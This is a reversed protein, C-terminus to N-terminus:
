LHQILVRLLLSIIMLGSFGLLLIAMCSSKAPPSVKWSSPLSPPDPLRPNTVTEKIWESIDTENIRNINITSSKVLRTFPKLAKLECSTFWSADDHALWLDFSDRSICLSRQTRDQFSLALNNEDIFQLLMIKYPYIKDSFGYANSFCVALLGRDDHRHHFLKGYEPGGKDYSAEPVTNNYREVYSTITQNIWEWKQQNVSVIRAIRQSEEQVRRLESEEKRQTEADQNAKKNELESLWDSM